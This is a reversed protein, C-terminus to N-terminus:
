EGVGVTSWECDTNESPTNFVNQANQSVIGVMEVRVRKANACGGFEKSAADSGINDFFETTPFAVSIFHVSTGVVHSTCQPCLNDLFAGDDFLEGVDRKKETVFESQCMLVVVWAM